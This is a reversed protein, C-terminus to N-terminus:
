PPQPLAPPRELLLPRIQEIPLVAAAPVTSAELRRLSWSEEIRLPGVALRTLGTLCGGTGLRLGIDRVLARVYTGRGCALDFRLWPWAYSRLRIWHIHVSRPRLVPSQGARALRYAPRGRVKVASTPPPSQLSVGEFSGLVELVQQLSPPHPPAVAIPDTEADLSPSTFDLVATVRYVKPQAMVLEVLKTARGLCLVLVGDALPDLTGAHGSKRQRLLRRVRGLAKGSSLGVPKYLNIFGDLM